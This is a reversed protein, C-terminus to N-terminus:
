NTISVNGDRVKINCYKQKDDSTKVEPSSIIKGQTYWNGKTTADFENLKVYRPQEVRKSQEAQINSTM